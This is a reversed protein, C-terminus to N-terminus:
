EGKAEDLLTGKKIKFFVDVYLIDLVKSIEKYEKLKEEDEYYIIVEDFFEYFYNYVDDEVQEPLLPILYYYIRDLDKVYDQSDYINEICSIFENIYTRYKILESKLTEFDNKM